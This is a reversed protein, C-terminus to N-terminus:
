SYFIVPRREGGYEEEPVYEALADRDEAGLLQDLVDIASARLLPKNDNGCNEDFTCAPCGNPQGCDCDRLQDRAREALDEFNEYIARAFGLGGDIGDYIFWGSATPGSLETSRRELAHTAAEFSESISDAIDDYDPHSYHTDMVLTSLGGLDNKDVRLELPHEVDSRAVHIHPGRRAAPVAHRVASAVSRRPPAVAGGIRGVTRVTGAWRRSSRSM